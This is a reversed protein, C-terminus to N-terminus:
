NLAWGHLDCKRLFHLDRKSEYMYHVAIGLAMVFDDKDKCCLSVKVVGRRAGKKPIHAVRRFSRMQDLMLELTETPTDGLLDSAWAMGHFRLAERTRLAYLEKSDETTLVGARNKNKLGRYVEVNNHIGSRKLIAEVLSSTIWSMNAPHVCVCGFVHADTYCAARM